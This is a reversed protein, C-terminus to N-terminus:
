CRPRAASAHRDEVPEVKAAGVIETTEVEAIDPWFIDVAFRDATIGHARMVTSTVMGIM